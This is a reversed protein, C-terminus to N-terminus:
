LSLYRLDFTLGYLTVLKNYLFQPDSKQFGMWCEVENSNQHIYWHECKDSSSYLRKKMDIELDTNADSWVEVILDPVGAVRSTSNNHIYPNKQFLLFDPQVFALEEITENKFAGADAIKDVDVLM